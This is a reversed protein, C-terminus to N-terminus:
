GLICIPTDYRRRATSFIYSFVSFINKNGPYNKRMMARHEYHGQIQSFDLNRITKDFEAAVYKNKTVDM